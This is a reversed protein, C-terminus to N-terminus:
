NFAKLDFVWTERLLLFWAKLSYCPLRAQIELRGTWKVMQLSLIVVDVKTQREMRSAERVFKLSALGWLWSFCDKFYRIKFYFLDIYTCIDKGTRNKKQLIRVSVSTIFICLSYKLQTKIYANTHLEDNNHLNRYIIVYWLSLYSTSKTEIYFLHIVNLDGQEGLM